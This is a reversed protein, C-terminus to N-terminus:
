ENLNLLFAVGKWIWLQPDRDSPLSVSLVFNTSMGTTSLAGARKSTKYVPCDFREPDPQAGLAPLFHIPRMYSYMERPQSDAVVGRAADWRAGEMYLGSVIVGDSPREDLDGDNAAENYVSFEFSLSNIAVQHKRAFTQLVSTLFGQPFFFVNLAFVVPEGRKLWERLFKVRVQLDAFWSQLPRLSPYAVQSFLEPVAGNFFSTFAKDLELSMVIKGEIANGLDELTTRMRTLLRNFKEIEQKLLTALPPLLGTTENVVFTSPGAETETDLAAPVEAHMRAAMAKVVEDPTVSNGGSGGARPQISLVASLMSSSEQLELTIYANPDLGFVETSEADPLAKAFRLYSQLNTADTPVKYGPGFAYNPDELLAPTYFKGLIAMLCRRDWDDTVRGGYNIQGTVYRLADWPITGDASEDLFRRLQEASTELDSDDFEYRINWGLPGFKRREQVIGHFFCLGYLMKRFEVPRRPCSQLINESLVSEYTRGLNAKLGRPPENTLKLGNQLV